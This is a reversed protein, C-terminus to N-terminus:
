KRLTQLIMRLYQQQMQSQWNSSLYVKSIELDWFHLSSQIKELFKAESVLIEALKGCLEHETRWSVIHLSDKAKFDDGDLLACM